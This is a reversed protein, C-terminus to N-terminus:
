RRRIRALPSLATDSGSGGQWEALLQLLAQDSTASVSALLTSQAVVASSSPGITGTLQLLNALYEGRQQRPTPSDAAPLITLLGDVGPDNPADTPAPILTLWGENLQTRIALDRASAALNIPFSGAPADAKVTAHLQVFEGQFVGELPSMGGLSVLVRGALPEIRSAITWGRDAVLSGLAVSTVDLATPDYHIILEASELGDGTLDVISDIHVPITMETGSTAILDAPISLKPDPGGAILSVGPLPM